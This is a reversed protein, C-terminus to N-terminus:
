ESLNSAEPIHEEADRTKPTAKISNHKGTQTRMMRIKLRLHEPNKALVHGRRTKVISVEGERLLRSLPARRKDDVVFKGGEVDM